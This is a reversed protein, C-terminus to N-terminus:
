VRELVRERCSARGIEKVLVKQGDIPKFVLRLAYNAFMVCNIRSNDDKLTFYFHGSNHATFNSLEGVIWISQIFSDSDLKQKLYNVLQSVSWEKNMM